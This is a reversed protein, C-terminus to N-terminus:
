ATRSGIWGRWLSAAEIREQASMLDYLERLKTFLQNQKATNTEQSAVPIRLPMTLTEPQKVEPIIQAQRDERPSPSQQTDSHQVPKYVHVDPQKTTQRAQPPKRSKGDKGKRPEDKVKAAPSSIVAILQKRIDGVFPQSVGAKEAVERDSWKVWEEDNLLAMVAKRKDQNSRRQGNAKNAGVAFLIAERQSGNHITCLITKKGAERAGYFRHFGDVLWYTAGDFFVDIPPFAANMKWHDRYELFLEKSIEARMQTGGDTRILPLNLEKTQM